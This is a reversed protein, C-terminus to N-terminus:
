RASLQDLYDRVRFFQLVGPNPIEGRRLMYLWREGVGTAAAIEPVTKDVDRLRKVLQTVVDRRTGM